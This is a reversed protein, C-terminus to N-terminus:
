VSVKKYLGSFISYSEGFFIMDDTFVIDNSLSLIVNDKIIVYYGYSLDSLVHYNKFKYITEKWMYPYGNNSWKDLSELYNSDDIFIHKKDPKLENLQEIINEKYENKEM